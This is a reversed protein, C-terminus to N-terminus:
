RGLAGALDKIISAATDPAFAATGVPVAVALMLMIQPWLKLGFMPLSVLVVLPLLLVQAATRLEDGLNQTFRSAAYAPTAIVGLLLGALATVLLLSVTRSRSMM